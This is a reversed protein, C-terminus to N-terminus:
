NLTTPKSPKSKYGKYILYAGGALLILTFVNRGWLEASDWYPLYTFGGGIFALFILLIGLGIKSGKFKM